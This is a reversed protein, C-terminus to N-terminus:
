PSFVTIHRSVSTQAELGFFLVFIVVSPVLTKLAVAGTVDFKHKFRFLLPRLANVSRFQYLIPGYPATPSVLSCSESTDMQGRLNKHLAPCELGRGWGTTHSSSFDKLLKPKKRVCFHEPETIIYMLRQSTSSLADSITWSRKTYNLTAKWLFTARNEIPMNHITKLM